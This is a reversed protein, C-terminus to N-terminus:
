TASPSTPPYFILCTKRGAQTDTIFHGSVSCASLIFPLSQVHYNRAKNFSRSSVFSNRLRRRHPIERCFSSHFYCRGKRLSQFLVRRLLRSSECANQFYTFKNKSDPGDPDIALTLIPILSFLELILSKRCGNTIPSPCQPNRFLANGRFFEAFITFGCFFNLFYRLKMTLRYLQRIRQRRPLFLPFFSRHSLSVAKCQNNFCDFQLNFHTVFYPQKQSSGFRGCVALCPLFFTFSVNKHWSDDVLVGLFRM